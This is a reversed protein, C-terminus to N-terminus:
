DSKILNEFKQKARQGNDALKEAVGMLTQEIFEADRKVGGKPSKKQIERAREIGLAVDVFLDDMFMKLALEKNM